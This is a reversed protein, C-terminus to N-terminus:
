AVRRRREFAAALAFGIIVTATGAVLAITQLSPGAPAPGYTRRAWERVWDDLSVGAAESFAQSVPKNSTWFREFADRGLTRAMESVLWSDDAGLPSPKQSFYYFSPSAGYTSVVQARWVSDDPAATSRLAAKACVGREGAICALGPLGVILRTRWYPDGMSTFRDWFYYPELMRRTAWPPAPQDWSAIRALSWRSDRMWQSVYVGPQGFKALYVCPGFIAGMTEPSELDRTVINRIQSHLISLSASMRVVSLCPTGATSPLLVDIPTVFAGGPRRPLGHPNTASDLVFAVIMPVSSDAGLQQWRARALTDLAVALTTPWTNDIMVRLGTSPQKAHIALLSDRIELLRVRDNTLALQKSVALLRRTPSDSASTSQATDAANAPQAHHRYLLGLWILGCGAAVLLVFRKLTLAM